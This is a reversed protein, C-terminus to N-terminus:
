AEGVGDDAIRVAIEEIAAAGGGASMVRYRRAACTGLELELFPIAREGDRIEILRAACEIGVLVVLEAEVPEAAIRVNMGVSIAVRDDVEAVAVNYGQEADDVRALNGCPVDEDVAVVIAAAVIAPGLKVGAALVAGAAA